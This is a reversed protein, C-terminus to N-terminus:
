MCHLDGIRGEGADVYHVVGEGLSLPFCSRLLQPHPPNSLIAGGM